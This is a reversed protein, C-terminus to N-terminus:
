CNAQAVRIFLMIKTVCWLIGKKTNLSPWLNQNKVITKIAGGVTPFQTSFVCCWRCYSCDQRAHVGARSFALWNTM